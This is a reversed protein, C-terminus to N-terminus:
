KWTQILGMFVNQIHGEIILNFINNQPTTRKFCLCYNPWWYDVGITEVKNQMCIEKTVSSVPTSEEMFYMIIHLIFQIFGFKVLLM